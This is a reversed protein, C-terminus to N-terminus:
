SIPLIPQSTGTFEVMSIEAHNLNWTIEWPIQEHGCWINGWKRAFNHWMCNTRKQWGLPFSRRKSNSMCWFNVYVLSCGEAGGCRKWLSSRQMERPRASPMAPVRMRASRSWNNSPRWQQMWSRCHLAKFTKFICPLLTWFNATLLHGVDFVFISKYICLSSQVHVKWAYYSHM